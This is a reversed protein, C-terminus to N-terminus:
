RLGELLQGPQETTRAPQHHTRDLRPHNHSHFLKRAEHADIIPAPFAALDDAALDSQPIDSVWRIEHAELPPISRWGRLGWKLLTELPLEVQGPTQVRLVFWPNMPRDVLRWDQDSANFVCTGYPGAPVGWRLQATLGAVLIGIMVALCLVLRILKWRDM